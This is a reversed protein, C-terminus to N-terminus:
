LTGCWYYHVRARMFGAHPQVSSKECRAAGITIYVPACSDLTHNFVPNSREYAHTHGHFVADVGYAYLLAEM